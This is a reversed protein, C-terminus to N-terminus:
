DHASERGMEKGIQLGIYAAMLLKKKHEPLNLSEIADAGAMPEDGHRADYADMAELLEFLVKLAESEKM